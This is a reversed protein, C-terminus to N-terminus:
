DLAADTVPSPVAQLWDIAATHRRRRQWRQRPATLLLARGFAAESTKQLGPRDWACQKLSAPLDSPPLSHSNCWSQLSQHSQMIFARVGCQGPKTWHEKMRSLPVLPRHMFSRRRSIPFAKSVQVPTKVKNSIM